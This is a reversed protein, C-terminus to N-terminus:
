DLRKRWKEPNQSCHFVSYVYIRKRTPKFIVAYPFRRVLARRYRRHVAPFGLPMRRVALLCEDLCQLFEEGLGDRRGEYWEYAQQSDALAEPLLELEVM